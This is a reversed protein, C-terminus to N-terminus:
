PFSRFSHRRSILRGDDQRLGRNSGIRRRSCTPSCRSTASRILFFVGSGPGLAGRPRHREARAAARVLDVLARATWPALNISKITQVAVGRKVCVAALAEFDAAYTADRMQVHNYPRPCLRLSASSAGSTCGRLLSGHRHRRHLADARRRPGRDRRPACRRRGDCSATWRTSWTTCSILDVHDIRLRRAVAPDRRAGRRLRAKGDPGRPFLPPTARWGRRSACSRTGTLEGATDLHNLDYRLVLSSRATRRLTPPRASRPPASSPAAPKRARHKGFPGKAIM